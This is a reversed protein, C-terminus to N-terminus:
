DSDTKVKLESLESDLNRKLHNKPFINLNDDKKRPIIHFHLHMVSQGADQGNANLINVGSFGCANVLHESVKKIIQSLVSLEEPCCDLVNECHKKPIVLIHGYFDDSIDLFALTKEDEYIKRSPIQGNIIKCFICDEM